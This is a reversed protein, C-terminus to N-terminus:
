KINGRLMVLEDKKKQLKINLIMLQKETRSISRRLDTNRRHFRNMHSKRCFKQSNHHLIFEDGCWLCQKKIIGVPYCKGTWSKGYRNTYYQKQKRERNKQKKCMGCFKPRDQKGLPVENDCGSCKKFASSLVQFSMKGTGETEPIVEQM